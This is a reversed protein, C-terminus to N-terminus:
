FTFKFEERWVFLVVLEETNDLGFSECSFDGFSVKSVNLPTRHFFTNKFIEGFECSFM